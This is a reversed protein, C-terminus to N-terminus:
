WMLIYATNLLLFQMLVNSAGLYCPERCGPNWNYYQVIHLLKCWNIHKQATYELTMVKMCIAHFHEFRHLSNCMAWDVQTSCEQTSCLHVRCQKLASIYVCTETMFHGIEDVCEPQSPLTCPEQLQVPTCQPCSWRHYSTHGRSGRHPATLSLTVTVMHTLQLVGRTISWNTYLIKTITASTLSPWKM